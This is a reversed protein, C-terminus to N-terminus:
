VSCIQGTELSTIPMFKAIKIKSGLQGNQLAQLGQMRASKPRKRFSTMERINLTKPATKQVSCSQHTELCTKPMNKAIKIKSGFQVNQLAQLRQMTTSKPWKRFSTMERINPTESGNKACLVRVHGQLRKQCTKPLKLKQGLSVM